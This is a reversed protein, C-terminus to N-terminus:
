DALACFREKANRDDMRLEFRGENVDNDGPREERSSQHSSGEEVGQQVSANYQLFTDLRM